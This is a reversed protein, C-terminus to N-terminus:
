VEAPCVRGMNASYGRGPFDRRVNLRLASGELGPTHLLLGRGFGVSYVGVLVLFLSFGKSPRDQLGRWPGDAGPATSSSPPSPSLPSTPPLGAWM